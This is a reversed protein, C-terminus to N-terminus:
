GDLSLALLVDDFSDILDRFGQQSRSIMAFLQDLQKENPPAEDRHEMGRMLGRLESIEQTKKWVYAGFLAIVVVILVHALAEYRSAFSRISAWSTWAFFVALVFLVVFTFRWLEKQRKEFKDFQESIVSRSGAGPPSSGTTRRGGQNEDLM